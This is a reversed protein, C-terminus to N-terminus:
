SFPGDSTPSEDSFGYDAFRDDKRLRNVVANPVQRARSSYAYVFAGPHSRRVAVIRVGLDTASENLRGALTDAARISSLTSGTARLEFYSPM